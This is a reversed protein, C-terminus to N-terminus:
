KRGKKMDKAATNYKVRTCLYYANASIGFKKAIIKRM